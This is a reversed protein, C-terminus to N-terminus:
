RLRGSSTRCRRSIRDRISTRFRQRYKREQMASCARCGRLLTRGYRRRHRLFSHCLAGGRGHGSHRWIWGILAGTFPLSRDEARLQAETLREADPPRDFKVPGDGLPTPSPSYVIPHGSSRLEGFLSPAHTKVGGEGALSTVAAEMGSVGGDELVTDAVQQFYARYNENLPRSLYKAGGGRPHHLNLDEHIYQAYVQDVVVKGVVFEGGIRESLLTMREVFDGM